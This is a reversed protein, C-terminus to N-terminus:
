LGPFQIWLKNWLYKTKCCFRGGRSHQLKQLHLKKGSKAAFKLFATPATAFKLEPGYCYNKLSSRQKIHIFSAGGRRVLIREMIKVFIIKRQLINFLSNMKLINHLLTTILRLKANKSFFTFGAAFTLCLVINSIKYIV